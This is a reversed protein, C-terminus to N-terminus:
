REVALVAEREQNVRREREQRERELRAQKETKVKIDELESRLWRRRREVDDAVEAMLLDDMTQEQDDLDRNIEGIVTELEDGGVVWNVSVVSVNEVASTTAKPTTRTVGDTGRSGNTSIM